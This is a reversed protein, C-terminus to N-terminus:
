AAPPETWSDENSWSAILLDCSAQSILRQTVSGLLQDQIRSKGQRGLALLDVGMRMAHHYIIPAPHGHHVARSILQKKPGLDSILQNLEARVTEGARVRYSQIVYEPIGVERMIGEDPVHFAHLFTVNASPAILLATRAAERSENSFDIAVLVKKYGGKPEQNVFLLPRNCARALEDNSKGTLLRFLPDVGRAPVVTLDARLEEARAPIAESPKGIRISHIRKTRGSLPAANPETFTDSLKFFPDQGLLNSGTSTSVAQLGKQAPQVSMMEFTDAMLEVSLMAARTEARRAHESYDTAVLIRRIRNVTIEM